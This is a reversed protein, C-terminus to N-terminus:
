FLFADAGWLTFAPWFIILMLVAIYVIVFPLVGRYIDLTRMGLASQAVFINIGFPPTFLGISLNLTLVIGFHVKDIGLTEVMPTLVPVLLLIASM